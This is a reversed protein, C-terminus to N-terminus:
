GHEITDRMVPQHFVNKLFDFRSKNFSYHFKQSFQWTALCGDIIAPFYFPVSFRLWFYFNVEKMLIDMHTAYILICIQNASSELTAFALIHRLFLLFEYVYGEGDSLEPWTTERAWRYSALLLRPVSTLRTSSPCSGDLLVMEVALWYGLTPYKASCRWDSPAVALRLVLFLFPGTRIQNQAFLWDIIWHLDLSRMQEYGVFLNRAHM